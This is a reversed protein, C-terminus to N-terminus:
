PQVPLDPPSRLKAYRVTWLMTAIIVGTFLAPGWLLVETTSFTWVMSAKVCFELTLVVGWVATIRRHTGMVAPQQSRATFRELKEPDKGAIMHRAFFYM